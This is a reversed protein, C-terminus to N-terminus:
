LEKIENDKLWREYQHLCIATVAAAAALILEKEISGVSGWFREGNCEMEKVQIWLVVIDGLVHFAIGSSIGGIFMQTQMTHRRKQKLDTKDFHWAGASHIKWLCIASVICAVLIIAISTQFDALHIKKVSRYTSLEYYLWHLEEIVSTAAVGIGIGAAAGTLEYDTDTIENGWIRM